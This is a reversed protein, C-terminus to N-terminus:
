SALVKSIVTALEKLDLPKDVLADARMSKAVSMLLDRSTKATGGTMVIIRMDQYKKKIAMLVELGDMEPMIVDTIVLDYSNQEILRMGAKGDGASDVTHGAHRLFTELIFRMEMEDDLVLIHAM